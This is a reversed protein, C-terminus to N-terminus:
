PILLHSFAKQLFHCWFSPRFSNDLCHQSSLSPRPLIRPLPLCMCHDPPSFRNPVHSSFFITTASPYLLSFLSHSLPSPHPLLFSPSSTPSSSLSTSLPSLQCIYKSQPLCWKFCKRYVFKKLGWLLEIFYSHTVICVKYLFVSPYLCIFYSAWPKVALM